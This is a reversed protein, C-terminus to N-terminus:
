FCTAEDKDTPHKPSGVAHVEGHLVAEQSPKSSHLEWVNKAAIELNEALEIARQLLLSPELLLNKYIHDDSVGFVLRDHLM